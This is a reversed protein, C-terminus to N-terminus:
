PGKKQFGWRELAFLIRTDVIDSSVAKIIGLVLGDMKKRPSNYNANLQTNAYWFYACTHEAVIKKIKEAHLTSFPLLRFTGM